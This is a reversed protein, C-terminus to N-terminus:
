IKTYKIKDQVYRLEKILVEKFKSIAIGLRVSEFLFTNKTRQYIEDDTIEEPLNLIERIKNIIVKM